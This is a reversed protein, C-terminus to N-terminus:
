YNIRLLLLKVELYSNRGKAGSDLIHPVFLVACLKSACVQEYGEQSTIEKVEIPAGSADLTKLAFEVIGDAERPGSYDEPKGKPGASFVKITPYGKVAYRQALSQHATADVMGLKVGSPKLDSAAKEWHPKLNKCHGCWPAYFEVM